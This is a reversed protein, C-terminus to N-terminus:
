LDRASVTKRGNAEARKVAKKILEIVEKNLADAFDSAVNMDNVYNKISSKVIVFDEAM